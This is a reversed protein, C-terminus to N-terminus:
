GGRLEDRENCPPLRGGYRARHASLYRRHLDLPNAALEYVFASATQTDPGYAGRLHSELEQRIGSGNVALGIYILRGSAYLLYVGPAAPSTEVAAAAFPWADFTEDLYAHQSTDERARAGRKELFAWLRM